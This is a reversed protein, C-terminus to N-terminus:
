QVIVTETNLKEEEVKIIGTGLDTEYKVDIDLVAFGSQGLKFYDSYDFNAIGESNTYVTGDLINQRPPTETSTGYLRVFAGSIAEGGTNVVKISALTPGEKKFSSIGVGLGAFLLMMGILKMRKM